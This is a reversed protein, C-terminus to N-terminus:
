FIFSLKVLWVVFFSVKDKFSTFGENELIGEGTASNIFDHTERMCRTVWEIKAKVHEKTRQVKVGKTNLWAAIKACVKDKTDGGSPSRYNNFNEGIGMYHLLWYESHQPDDRGNPGDNTWTLTGHDSAKLFKDQHTVTCFVKDEFITHDKKSKQLMMTYCVNHALKTCGDYECVDLIHVQHLAPCGKVNCKKKTPLEPADAAAIPLDDYTVPPVNSNTIAPPRVPIISVDVPVNAIGDVNPNTAAFAATTNSPATNSSSTNASFSVISQVPM